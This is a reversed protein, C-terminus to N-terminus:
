ERHDGCMDDAFANRLGSLTGRLSSVDLAGTRRVLRRRDITRVQGVNVAGPQGRFMTPIRFRSAQPSSTLPAVIVTQQQRHMDEPSVVVCPRTKKTESGVAPDLSVVWVEGRRVM